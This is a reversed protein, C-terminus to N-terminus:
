DDNPRDGAEHGDSAASQQALKGLYWNGRSWTLTLRYACIKWGDNTRVLQYDYVGGMVRFADGRDTPLYHVAQVYCKCSAEDGAIDMVHNSIIHQTSKYGSVNKILSQVWEDAKWSDADVEIEDVFCSLLAVGDRSDVAVAYKTIVDSIATRDLLLQMQSDM